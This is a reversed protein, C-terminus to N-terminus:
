KNKWDNSAKQPWNSHIILYIQRPISLLHVRNHHWFMFKVYIKVWLATVKLKLSKNKKQKKRYFSTKEVM